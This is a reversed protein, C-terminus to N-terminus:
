PLRAHGVLDDPAYVGRQAVVDAVEDGLAGHRSRMEVLDVREQEQIVVARLDIRRVVAAQREARMRVAPELGDRKDEVAQERVAVARAVLADDTGAAHLPHRGAAADHMRFHRRAFEHFAASRQFDQLQPHVQRGRQLHRRRAVDAQLAIRDRDHVDRVAHAHVEHRPRDATHRDRASNSASPSWSSM